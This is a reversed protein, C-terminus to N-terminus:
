EDIVVGDQTKAINQYVDCNKILEDHSGFGVARGDEMVLIKNANRVSSIRQAIVISTIDSCNEHLAKRLKADTKYDLASSSDDLILIEPDGAVARAILIRQRQGGSVNTGNTSLMREYGDELGDIFDAQAINAASKIDELPINRGFSINEEVTDAFIADSQFVVGFKSNLIDQPISKIDQGDIRIVGSDIDYFRMLLNMLTSKGCGTAGIIGLTEGPKVGFSINEINNKKKNYSFSVNDFEIKYNSTIINPPSLLLEDEADLVESIRNASAVAKSYVVFMRTISLMANLIITFYTIFAILTGAQQVGANVRIAGVIIVATQGLYFLFNMIPNSLAMTISAKTERESLNENARGFRECEYTTKSLAKIVRVGVVNERVVRIMRDVGSQQETFLPIGKKSIKYVAFGIIPLVLALTLSLVPDISVTVLLGGVLLIPARVGLRQMMGTMHHVNYTDTTLRAELSPITFDDTKSSSLYLIKRFLDQRIQATTTMAVKAAMRNAIINGAIAVISILTMVIGWMVIAKTDKDPVVVDILHALILPLLLDMITGIFKVIFGLSM